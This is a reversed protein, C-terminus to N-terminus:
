LQSKEEGCGAQGGGIGLRWFCSGRHAGKQLVRGGRGMVRLVALFAKRLGMETMLNRAFGLMSGQSRTGFGLKGAQSFELMWDM